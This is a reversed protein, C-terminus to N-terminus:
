YSIKIMTSFRSFLFVTYYFTFHHGFVRLIFFRILKKKWYIKKENVSRNISFEGKSGKVRKTQQVRVSEVIENSLLVLLCVCFASVSTTKSKWKFAM